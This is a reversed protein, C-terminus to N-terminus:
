KSGSLQQMAGPKFLRLFLMVEVVDCMWLLFGSSLAAWQVCVSVQSKSLQLPPLITFIEEQQTVSREAM